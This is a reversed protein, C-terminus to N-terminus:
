GGARYPRLDGPHRPGEAEVACSWTPTSCAGTRWESRFSRHFRTSRIRACPVRPDSMSSRGASSAPVTATPVCRAPRPARSFSLSSNASSQSTLGTMERAMRLAAAEPTEGPECPNSPLSAAAGPAHRGSPHIFVIEGADTEIVVLAGHYDFSELDLTMLSERPPRFARRAVHGRYLDPGLKRPVRPDGRRDAAATGSEVAGARRRARHRDGGGGNPHLPAPDRPARCSRSRRASSM